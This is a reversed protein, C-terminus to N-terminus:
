NAISSYDYPCAEDKAKVQIEILPDTNWNEILNSYNTSVGAIKAYTICAIIL